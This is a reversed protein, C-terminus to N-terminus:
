WFYVHNRWYVGFAMLCEKNQFNYKMRWYKASNPNVLLYLGRGDSMKYPKAKGKTNRVKTDSLKM